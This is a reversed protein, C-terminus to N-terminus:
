KRRSPCGYHREHLRYAVTARLVSSLACNPMDALIATYRRRLASADLSDLAEIEEKLAKPLEEM